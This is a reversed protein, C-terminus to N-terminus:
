PCSAPRGSIPAAPPTQRLDNDLACIKVMYPSFTQAMMSQIRVERNKQQHANRSIRLLM